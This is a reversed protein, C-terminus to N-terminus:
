ATFLIKRSTVQLSSDGARAQTYTRECHPCKIEQGRKDIVSPGKTGGGGGSSCQPVHRLHSLARHTTQYASNLMAHAQRRRQSGKYWGCHELHLLAMRLPFSVMSSRIVETM